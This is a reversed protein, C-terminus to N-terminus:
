DRRRYQLLDFLVYSRFSQLVDAVLRDFIRLVPGELGVLSDTDAKNGAEDEHDHDLLEEVDPLFVAHLLLVLSRSGTRLLQDGLREGLAVVEVLRLARVLDLIALVEWVAYINRDEPDQDM